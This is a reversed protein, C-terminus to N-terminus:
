SDRADEILLKVKMDKHLSNQIYKQMTTGYRKLAAVLVTDGRRSM